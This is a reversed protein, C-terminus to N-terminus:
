KGKFLFPNNIESWSTKNKDLMEEAMEEAKIEVLMREKEAALREGASLSVGGSFGCHPCKRGLQKVSQDVYDVPTYAAESETVYYTKGCCPCQITIVKEGTQLAKDVVENFNKDLTTM